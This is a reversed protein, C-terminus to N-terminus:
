NPNTANFKYSGQLFVGYRDVTYTELQQFSDTANTTLHWWRSGVGIGLANSFEYSVIADIQFGNGSGSSPTVGLTFLHDDVAKQSFARVYAADATLKVHEGLMVDATAGIRLLNWNDTESVVAISAPIPFFGCVDPNTAIQTCGSATVAENWRGYGAFGGLRFSPQRIVSYGLDITGYSLTGAAVSTTESYPFGPFPFDEDLLRGGSISGAGIFGKIFIGWPTDGRAYFEGANATLQDYTLRSVLLATTTDGYYNYGIRGTSYWYRGGFELGARDLNPGSDEARAAAAFACAAILGILLQTPRM